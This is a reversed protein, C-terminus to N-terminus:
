MRLQLSTPNGTPSWWLSLLHVAAESTTLGVLMEAGSAALTVHLDWPSQHYKWCRGDLDFRSDDLEKEPKHKRVAQVLPHAQALHAVRHINTYHEMQRGAKLINFLGMKPDDTLSQTPRSGQVPLLTPVLLWQQSIQRQSHKNALASRRTQQYITWPRQDDKGPKDTGARTIGGSARIPFRQRFDRIIRAKWDLRLEDGATIDTDDEMAKPYALLLPPRRDVAFPKTAHRKQSKLLYLLLFSSCSYDDRWLSCSFVLSSSFCLQRSLDPLM